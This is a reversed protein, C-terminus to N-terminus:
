ACAHPARTALLVAASRISRDSEAGRGHRPSRAHNSMRRQAPPNSVVGRQRAERGPQEVRAELHFARQAHATTRAAPHSPPTPTTPARPREDPAHISTHKRTPPRPGAPRMCTARAHRAAGGRQPHIPRAGRRPRPTPQARPQEDAEACTWELCRRASSGGQRATRTPSRPPLSETRPRHPARVSLHPRLRTSPPTHSSICARPSRRRRAGSPDTASRAAAAHNSM